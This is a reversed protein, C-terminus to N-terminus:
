RGVRRSQVVSPSKALFEEWLDEGLMGALTEDVKNDETETGTFCKVAAVQAEEPTLGCKILSVRREGEETTPLDPLSEVDGFYDTALTRYIQLGSSINCSSCGVMMEIIYWGDPSKLKYMRTRTVCGCECM